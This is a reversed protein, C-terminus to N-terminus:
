IWRFWMHDTFYSYSTTVPFHYAFLYTVRLNRNLALQSMPMNVRWKYITGQENNAWPVQLLQLVMNECHYVCMRSTACGRREPWVLANRKKKSRLYILATCIVALIRYYLFNLRRTSFILGLGVVLVIWYQVLQGIMLKTTREGYMKVYLLHCM